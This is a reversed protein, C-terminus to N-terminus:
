LQGLITFPRYQSYKDHVTFICVHGKGKAHDAEMPDILFFADSLTYVILFFFTIFILRMM